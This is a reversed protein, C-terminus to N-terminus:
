SKSKMTSLTRAIVRALASGLAEIEEEATMPLAPETPSADTQGGVLEDISDPDIMLLRGVRVGVLEHRHAMTKVVREPRKCATDIGLRAAAEALTVPARKPAPTKKM